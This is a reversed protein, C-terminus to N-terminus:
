NSVPAECRRNAQVNPTMAARLIRIHKVILRISLQMGVEGILESKSVLAIARLKSNTKKPMTTKM